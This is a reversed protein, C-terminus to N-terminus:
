ATPVRARPLRAPDLLAAIVPAELILSKASMLQIKEETVSITKEVKYDSDFRRNRLQRLQVGFLGVKAHAHGELLALLDGHTITYTSWNQIRRMEQQMQLFVAYYARSITTRFRGELPDVVRGNHLSEGVDLFEKPSFPM